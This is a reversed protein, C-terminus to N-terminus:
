AAGRRPLAIRASATATVEGLQNTAEAAVGVVGNKLDRTDV